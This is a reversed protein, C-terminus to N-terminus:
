AAVATQAALLDERTFLPIACTDIHHKLLASLSPLYAVVDVTVPLTSEEFLTYLRDIQEQTVEGYVVLDIDSNVRARGTARSGFVAVSEIEQAFTALVRRLENKVVRDLVKAGASRM